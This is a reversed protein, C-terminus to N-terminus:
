FIAEAVAGEEEEEKEKEEDKEGIRRTISCLWSRACALCISWWQAVHKAGFHKRGSLVRLEPCTLLNLDM